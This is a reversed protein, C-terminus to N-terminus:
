KMCRLWVLNSNLPKGAFKVAAAHIFVDFKEFQWPQFISNITLALRRKLKQHKKLLKELSLEM